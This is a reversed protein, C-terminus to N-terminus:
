KNKNLVKLMDEPTLDELPIEEPKYEEEEEEQKNILADFEQANESLKAALINKITQAHQYEKYLLLAVFSLTLVINFINM